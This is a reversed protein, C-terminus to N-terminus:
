KFDHKRLREDYVEKINAIASVARNNRYDDHDKCYREYEDIKALVEIFDEHTHKLERVLEINFRLIYERTSDAYREDDVRIHEDLTKKISELESLIQNDFQQLSDLRSDTKAKLQQLNTIDTELKEKRRKEAYEKDFIRKLREKAWDFFSIVGKLAAALLVVFMLIETVSYRKLLENM